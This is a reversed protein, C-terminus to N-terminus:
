VEDASEMEAPRILAAAAAAAGASIIVSFGQSIDTFYFLACSVAAGFVVALLIGTSRRAPPIIIALFMGYISLGLASTVAAPLLEGAAAGLFTGATWGIIPILALGYMYGPSIRGERSSAVAFIEDTIAFSVLMRRLTTFSGDLKQTLSIAMLSYRINIVLQTLVTEILGGSAAIVAIGAVQGASTLNSLSMVAAQLISLGSGSALIGVGFSVSLYGLGIPIGDTLGRRFKNASNM